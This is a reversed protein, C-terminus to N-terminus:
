PCGGSLKARDNGVCAGGLRAARASLIKGRGRTEIPAVFVLTAWAVSSCEAMKGM